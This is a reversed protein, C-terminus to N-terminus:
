EIAGRMGGPWTSSEQSLPELIAFILSRPHCPIFSDIFWYIISDISWYIMSDISWYILSDISWYITSDISGYLMPDIFWYIMSDSFWYVISDIFWYTMSDIIWYIMSDIFWYIMSDIVGLHSEFTDIESDRLCTPGMKSRKPNWFTDTSSMKCWKPDLISFLSNRLCTSGM